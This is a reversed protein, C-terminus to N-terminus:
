EQQRPRAIIAQGASNGDVNQWRGWAAQLHEWSYIEERHELSNYVRVFGVGDRTTFTELINVYHGVATPTSSLSANEGPNVGVLPTVVYGQRLYDNVEEMNPVVHPDGATWNDWHLPSGKFPGIIGAEWSLEEYGLSVHYPSLTVNKILRPELVEAFALYAEAMYDVGAAHGAADEGCLNKHEPSWDGWITEDASAPVKGDRWAARMTAPLDQYQWRWRADYARGNPLVPKTFLDHDPLFAQTQERIAVEKNTRRDIVQREQFLGRPLGNLYIMFMEELYGGSITHSRFSGETRGALFSAWERRLYAIMALRDEPDLQRWIDADMWPPCTGDLLWIPVFPSEGYEAILAQTSAWLREMGQASAQDAEEFRRALERLWASQDRLGSTVPATQAILQAGYGRVKGGLEAAYRPDIPQSTLVRHVESATADAEGASKEIEVAGWRLKDPDVLINPM